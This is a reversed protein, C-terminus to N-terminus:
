LWYVLTFLGLWVLDVFHWYWSAAQFAFHETPTFHGLLSRGLMVLLLIAGIMVHLGHFGTLMFFTSGYIGSSLRLNLDQYAYGYEHVQLVVFLIGLLLTASLGILLQRRRQRLLGWHAWTITVASSLLVLTNFAPVGWAQMAAKPIAFRNPDPPELLPWLAEFHPWLILHTAAGSAAGGLWPVSLVRAFFLAAFFAGFFMVESFIFWGMGLRFSRDVQRNYRGALGERIVTGFWGFLMTVVLLAGGVMLTPGLDGGNLLRAFGVAVSALGVSGLIPWYSRQPVYYRSPGPGPDAAPYPHAM